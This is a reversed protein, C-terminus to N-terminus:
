LLVARGDTDADNGVGRAAKSERHAAERGYVVPQSRARRAVVDVPGTGRVDGSALFGFNLDLQLFYLTQGGMEGISFPQDAHRARVLLFAEQEITGAAVRELADHLRRM